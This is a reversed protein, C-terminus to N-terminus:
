CCSHQTQLRLDELLIKPDKSGMPDTECLTRGIKFNRHLQCLVLSFAPFVCPMLAGGGEPSGSFPLHCCTHQLFGVDHFPLSYSPAFMYLHM